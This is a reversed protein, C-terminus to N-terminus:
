GSPSLPPPCAAAVLRDPAFRVRRPRPAVGSLASSLTASSVHCQTDPWEETQTCANLWYWSPPATFFFLFAPQLSIAAAATVTGWERVWASRQACWRAAQPCWRSGKPGRRGMGGGGGWCWDAPPVRRRWQSRKGQGGGGLWVGGGGCSAVPRGARRSDVRAAARGGRRPLAEAQPRRPQGVRAGAHRGGAAAEAAPRGRRRRRRGHWQRRPWGGRCGREGRRCGALGKGRHWWRQKRAAAPVGVGRTTAARGRTAPPHRRGCAERRLLRGHARGHKRGCAERRLLRGHGGGHKGERGGLRGCCSWLRHRAARRGRIGEATSARRGDLGLLLRGAVARRLVGGRGARWVM